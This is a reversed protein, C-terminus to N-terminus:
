KSGGVSYPTKPYCPSKSRKSERKPNLNTKACRRNNKTIFGKPKLNKSPFRRVSKAKAYIV